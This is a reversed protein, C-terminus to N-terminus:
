LSVKQVQNNDIPLRIRIETGNGQGSIVQFDSGILDARERMGKLGHRSPGSIDEPSFGAGNDQISLYFDHGDSYCDIWVKRAKAHKRVNSLAEQVIRILQTQIEPPIEVTTDNGRLEVPIKTLDEFEFALESLWESLGNQGIGVRLGDIAQRAEIYVNSLENYFQDLNLQIREIDGRALYNKFQAAQLKLYGLTQALGDHIERALRRREEMIAQYEVDSLWDSNRIVLILQGAVTQLLAAQRQNFGQTRRSGVLLAGFSRHNELTLPVVMLSRIYSKTEADGSLEGLRVAKGSEIVGQLIGEFFPDLNTAKEGILIKMPTILRNDQAVLLVSLDAELSQHVSEVLSNLLSRLDAKKRISQMQQIALLERRRLRVGELALATEDILAGLFSQTSEDLLEEKELYLNLIGFERDTRKVPSCYVGVSDQVPGRILPCHHTLQSYNSCEQCQERVSPSALYELWSDMASNPLEGYRIAAAPQGHEDLPVFSAGKAGTLEVSLRLVLKVIENEDSTEVLKQGVRFIAELQKISQDVLKGKLVLDNQLKERQEYLDMVRNLMMYALFLFILVMVGLLYQNGRPWSRLWTPQFILYVIEVVVIVGLLIWPLLNSRLLKGINRSFKNRYTM